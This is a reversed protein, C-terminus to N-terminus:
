IFLCVALCCILILFPRAGGLISQGLPNQFSVNSAEMM